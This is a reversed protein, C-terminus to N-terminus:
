LTDNYRDEVQHLKFDPSALVIVGYTVTYGSVKAPIKIQHIPSHKVLDGFNIGGFMRALAVCTIGHMITCLPTAHPVCTNVLNFNALLM